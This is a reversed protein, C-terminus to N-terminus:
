ATPNPRPRAGGASARVEERSIQSLEKLLRKAKKWNQTWERVEVAMDASVYLTRSRGASKDTLQYRISEGRDARCLSGELMNGLSALQEMAKRRRAKLSLQSKM